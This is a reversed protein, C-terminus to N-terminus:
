VCREIVYLGPIPQRTWREQKQLSTKFFVGFPACNRSSYYNICLFLTLCIIIPRMWHDPAHPQQQFQQPLVTAVVRNVCFFRTSMHNRPREWTAQQGAVRCFLSLSLPVLCTTSIGWPGQANGAAQACSEIRRSHMQAHDYDDDDHNFISWMNSDQSGLM